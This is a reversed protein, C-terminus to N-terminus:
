ISGELFTVLAQAHFSIKVCMCPFSMMKGRANLSLTPFTGSIDEAVENLSHVAVRGPPLTNTMRWILHHIEFDSNNALLLAQVKFPTETFFFNFSYLM